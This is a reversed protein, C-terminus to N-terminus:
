FVEQMKMKQLYNSKLFDYPLVFFSFDKNLDFGLEYYIRWIYSSCYFESTTFKKNFAGYKATSYKLTLKELESKQEESLSARLVIIERDSCYELWESLGVEVYGYHYAPYEAVRGGGLVIASHGFSSYLNLKKKLILIDGPEFTFGKNLIEKVPIFNNKQINSCATFLLLIITIFLKKM